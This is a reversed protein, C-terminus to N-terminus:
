WHAGMIIMGLCLFAVIAVIIYDKKSFHDASSYKEVEAIRKELEEETKENEGM